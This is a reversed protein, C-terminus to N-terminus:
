FSMDCVSNLAKKESSIRRLYANESIEIIVKILLDIVEALFSIWLMGYLDALMKRIPVLLCLFLKVKVSKKMQEYHSGSSKLLTIIFLVTKAPFRSHLLNLFFDFM